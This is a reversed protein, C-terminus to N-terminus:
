FFVAESDDDIENVEYLKTLLSEFPNGEDPTSYNLDISAVEEETLENASRAGAVVREKELIPVEWSLYKGFAYNEWTEKPEPLASWKNFDETFETLRSKLADEQVPRPNALVDDVLMQASDKTIKQPTIAAKLSKGYLTYSEQYDTDFNRYNAVESNVNGPVERFTTGYMKSDEAAQKDNILHALEMVDSFNRIEELDGNFSTVMNGDQGSGYPDDVATNYEFGL